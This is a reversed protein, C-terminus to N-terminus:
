ELGTDINKGSIIAEVEEITKDTASAIQEASLGNKYMKLILGAEGEKHGEIRGEERGIAIGKEEIGEGLNCM